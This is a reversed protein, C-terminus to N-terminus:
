SFMQGHGTAEFASVFHEIQPRREGAPWTIAVVDFRAAYELLNHRRLYGLAVRTMRQQKVTTVAEEPQGGETSTRTKVEVFVITRGDVAIIDIEGLKDRQGRAIITYGLRKLYRVAADEGRQGLSHPPFLRDWLHVFRAVLNTLANPLVLAIM